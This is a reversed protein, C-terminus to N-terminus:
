AVDESREPPSLGDVVFVTESPTPPLVYCIGGSGWGTKELSKLSFFRDEENSFYREIVCSMKNVETLM